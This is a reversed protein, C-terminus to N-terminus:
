KINLKSLRKIYWNDIKTNLSASNGIFQRRPLRYDTARVQSKRHHIKGARDFRYTGTSRGHPRRHIIGGENHYSAYPVSTGIVIRQTNYSRLRVSRMLRGSQILVARNDDGKKNKKRKAWPSVGNDDFGQKRFNDRFHSAAMTGIARPADRLIQILGKELDKLPKQLPNAM